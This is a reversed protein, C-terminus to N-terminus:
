ILRLRQPFSPSSSTCSSSCDLSPYYIVQSTTRFVYLDRSLFIYDISPRQNGQIFTIPASENTPTVGNIFSHALYDLRVKPAQIRCGSLLPSYNLNGLLIYRSPNNPLLPSYNLHFMIDKLFAFREQSNALAYVVTVTISDFLESSYSVNTTIVRGCDSYHTNSFPLALSFSVIGCHPSWISDSAQFQTHFLSEQEPTKAHTEQLTLIHLKKTHLYRIFEANTTSDTLKPRL